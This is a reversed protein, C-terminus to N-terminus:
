AVRKEYNGVSPETETGLVTVLVKGTNVPKSGLVVM